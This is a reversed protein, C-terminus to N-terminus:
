LNNKTAKILSKKQFNDNTSCFKEAIQYAAITNLNELGRCWIFFKYTINQTAFYAHHELTLIRTKAGIPRYDKHPNYGNNATVREM